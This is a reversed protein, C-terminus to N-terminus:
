PLLMIPCGVFEALHNADLAKAHVADSSVVLLDAQRADAVEGCAAAASTPAVQDLVEFDHCGNEKLSMSLMDMRTAAGNGLDAEDVLLVTMRGSNSGAASALAAATAAALRSGDSLYPNQDFIALMVHKYIPAGKM